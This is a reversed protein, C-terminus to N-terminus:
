ADALGSLKISCTGPTGTVGAEAALVRFATAGAPVTWEFSFGLATGDQPQPGKVRHLDLTQDGQPVTSEDLTENIVTGQIEGASGFTWKPTLRVYGGAAGRTYFVVASIRKHRASLPFATPNTNAGAAPLAASATHAVANPNVLLTM